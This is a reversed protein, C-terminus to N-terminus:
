STLWEWVSRLVMRGGNWGEHANRMREEKMRRRAEEREDIAEKELLLLARRCYANARDENWRRLSQYGDKLIKGAM